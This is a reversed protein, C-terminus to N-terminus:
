RQRGVVVPRRQWLRLLAVASAAAAVAVGLSSLGWVAYVPELRAAHWLRDLEPLLTWWLRELWARAASVHQPPLLSFALLLAAMGGAFALSAVADEWRLRFAPLPAPAPRATAAQVQAMVRATFDAPEELLPRTALAEDVRRLSALRARCAACAALHAAVARTRSPSLQGDLYEQLQASTDKCRM